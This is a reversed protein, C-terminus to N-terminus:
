GSDIFNNKFAALFVLKIIGLLIKSDHQPIPEIDL